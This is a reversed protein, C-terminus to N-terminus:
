FCENHQVSNNRRSDGPTTDRKGCAHASLEKAVWYKSAHGSALGGFELWPLLLLNQDGSASALDSSGQSLCENILETFRLYDSRIKNLGALTDVAFIVLHVDCVLFLILFNHFIVINIINQVQSGNERGQALFVWLQSIVNIDSSCGIRHVYGSVVVALKKDGGRNCSKASLVKRLFVSRVICDQLGFSDISHALHEVLEKTLVVM